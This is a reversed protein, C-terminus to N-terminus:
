YDRTTENTISPFNPLVDFIRLINLGHNLTVFPVSYAQIHWFFEQIIGSYNQIHRIIGSYALIHMFTRLDAQIANSKYKGMAIGQKNSLM